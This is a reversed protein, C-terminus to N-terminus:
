VCHCINVCYLPINWMLPHKVQVRPQSKEGKVPQWSRLGVCEWTLKTEKHLVNQERKARFSVGRRVPQGTSEWLGWEGYELEKRQTWVQKQYVESKGLMAGEKTVGARGVKDTVWDVPKSVIGKLSWMWDAWLVRKLLRCHSSHTSPRGALSRIDRELISFKCIFSHKNCKYKPPSLTYWQRHITRLHWYDRKSKSLKWKWQCTFVTRFLFYCYNEMCQSITGM